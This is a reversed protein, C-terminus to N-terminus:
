LLNLKTKDLYKKTQADHKQHHIAKSTNNLRQNTRAKEKATYGGGDARDRQEQAEISAERAELRHAERNTLSGNQVGQNIREQQKQERKAKCEKTKEAMELCHLLECGRDM